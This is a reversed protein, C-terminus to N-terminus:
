SFVKWDRHFGKLDGLHSFVRTQPGCVGTQSGSCQYLKPASIKGPGWSVRQLGRLFWPSLNPFWQQPKYASIITYIGALHYQEYIFFSGHSNSM